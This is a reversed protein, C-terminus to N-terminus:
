HDSIGRINHVDSLGWAVGCYDGCNLLATSRPPEMCEACMFSGHFCLARFKGNQGQLTNYQLGIKYPIKWVQM